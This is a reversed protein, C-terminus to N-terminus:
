IGLAARTKTGVEGDMLLGRDKQFKVVATETETGFGGDAGHRSVDRCTGVLEEHDKKSTTYGLQRIVARILKKSIGSRNHAEDVINM